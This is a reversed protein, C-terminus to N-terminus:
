LYVDPHRIRFIAKALYMAALDAKREADTKYSLKLQAYHTFDAGNSM